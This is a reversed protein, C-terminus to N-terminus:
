NPLPDVDEYIEKVTVFPFKERIRKGLYEIGWQEAVRHGVCVVTMGLKKAEDLGSDRPQGTLYLVHKGSQQATPVWQQEQAIENVRQVEDAHFANMIAIVHIEESLGEQAHEIAGFEREISRLLLGLIASVSGVIGITRDADGKYGQVCVSEAVNIGLRSALVTNWGVTLYEDFSLHSSLVLVDDRIWRRRLNFPRHLFCITNNQRQEEPGPRKGIVGPRRVARPDGIADYVQATATVSLIVQEVPASDFNYSPNRPVHYLLSVDKPKPPLHSSLFRTFEAHTPTRAM